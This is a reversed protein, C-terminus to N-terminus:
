EVSMAVTVTGVPLRKSYKSFEMKLLELFLFFISSMLALDIKVTYLHLVNEISSFNQYM